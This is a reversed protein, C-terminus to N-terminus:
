SNKSNNKGSTNFTKEFFKGGQILICYYLLM